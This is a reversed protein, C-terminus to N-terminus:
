FVSTSSQIIAAIVVGYVQGIVFALYLIVIGTDRSKHNVSEM